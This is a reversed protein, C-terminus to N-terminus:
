EESGEARQEFTMKNVLGRKNNQIVEWRQGNVNM